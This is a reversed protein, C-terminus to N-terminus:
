LYWLRKRNYFSTEWLYVEKKCKKFCKRIQGTRKTDNLAVQRGKIQQLCGELIKSKESEKLQRMLEKKENELKKIKKFQLYNDNKLMRIQDKENM